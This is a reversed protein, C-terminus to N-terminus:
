DLTLLPFDVDVGWYAQAASAFRGEAGFAHHQLVAADRLAGELAHGRYIATTSAVQALERVARACEQQVHAYALFLDAKDRLSFPEGRTARDYAEAAASHLYSRAARYAALARGYHLQALPRHAATTTSAFPVKERATESTAQLASRLVGLCTAAVALPITGSPMRYLPGAHAPGPDPPATLDVIHHEPVFVGDARITHSGTGRMGVTDWDHVIELNERPHFVLLFREGCVATHGLWDAVECGSAFPTSGRVTIGGSAVEAELPRNYTEGLVPVEACSCLEELLLPSAGRADFWVASSGHLLWAASPDGTAVTEVAKAFTVPNAELGGLASPRWLSLMGTRQLAAVVEPHLQAAKEGHNRHAAAVEAAERAANLIDTASSTM